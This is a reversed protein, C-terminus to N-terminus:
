LGSFMAAQFVTTPFPIELGDVTPFVHFYMMMPENWVTSPCFGLCGGPITLVRYIIPYDDGKTTCSKTWWCYSGPFDGMKLLFYMCRSMWITSKRSGRWTLSSPPPYRLPLPETVFFFWWLWPPSLKTKRNSFTRLELQPNGLIPTGWFPHNIISFGILISSKPTGSNESVGGFLQLLFGERFDRLLKHLSRRTGGHAERDGPPFDTPSWLPRNM